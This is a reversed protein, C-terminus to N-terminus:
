SDFYRTLFVQLTDVAECENLEVAAASAAAITAVLGFMFVCLFAM